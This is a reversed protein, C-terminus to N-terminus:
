PIWKFGNPLCLISALLGMFSNCASALEDQDQLLDWLVKVIHAVQEFNLLRPLHSSIPILTSAAVAGVDDVKDYLGELIDNIILPLYTQILDVRVVLMYKLGLLGGHRVEWQQQKIFQLLIDVVNKVQDESMKKLITGLVQACTERVPAVVQDSVYDGFRDLALVSLLRLSAEEIWLQHSKEMEESNMDISKGAGDSHYKILERLATASGHRTEWRPSFLDAYLRCYFTQFPWRHVDADWSGTVDPVPDNTSIVVPPTEVKIDNLKIKKFTQKQSQVEDFNFGNSNANTKGISPSPTLLGSTSTSQRAKRRARNMERCSLSLSADVNDNKTELQPIEQPSILRINDNLENINKMPITKCNPPTTSIERYNKVDELTVIEDMASNIASNFGLKENIIARQKNLKEKSDSSNDCDDQVDFETGESGMLLVGKKLINYIDFKAFTLQIEDDKVCVDMKEEFKIKECIQQSPNWVPVNELIAQVAQSASVRTDWNSNHLYTLLRNLLNHLEHPHLKQVDGIQKAAAKRTVASTGSELLIFLRDM